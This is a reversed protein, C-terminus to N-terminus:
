RDASPLVAAPAPLLTQLLNLAHLNAQATLVPWMLLLGYGRIMLLLGGVLLAMSDEVGFLPGIQM